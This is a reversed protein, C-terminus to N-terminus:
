GKQALPKCSLASAISWYAYGSTASLGFCFAGASGGYGANGGVLLYKTDIDQYFYDTYYTSSSGGAVNGIMCGYRNYAM